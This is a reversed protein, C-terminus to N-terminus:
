SVNDEEDPSYYMNTDDDSTDVRDSGYGKDYFEWYHKSLAGPM